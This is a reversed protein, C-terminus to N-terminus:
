LLFVIHRFHGYRTHSVTVATGRKIKSFVRDEDSCGTTLPYVPLKLCFLHATAMMNLSAGSPGNIDYHAPCDFRNPSDGWNAFFKQMNLVRIALIFINRFLAHDTVGFITLKRCSSSSRKSFNLEEETLGISSELLPSNGNYLGRGQERPGFQLSLFSRDGVQWSYQFFSIIVMIPIFFIIIISTVIFICHLNHHEQGYYIIM